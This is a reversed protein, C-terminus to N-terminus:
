KGDKGGILNNYVDRRSLGRDKAVSRMAEKKDQGLSMYYELHQELSLDLLQAKEEPIPSDMRGEIVLVFEGRPENSEYFAAAESLNLRLVEEHIKTLERCVAIRRDGLAEYLLNLTAKLRHPAEYLIITRTEYTLSQLIASREKNEKPLFGEFVFRRASLGSLTLATVFATAGPLSSVRIGAEICAKVLDEGPDSIAPTGADTILVIKSGELIKNLLVGQMKNKNHEHYSTLPTHIDYASLLKRSVRTDESAILDANRLAELARESIDKLNGIPTACLILEGEFYSPENNSEAM